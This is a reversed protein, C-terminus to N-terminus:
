NKTHPRALPVLDRLKQTFAMKNKDNYVRMVKKDNLFPSTASKHRSEVTLYQLRHDTIDADVNGCQIDKYINLPHLNVFVQDIISGSDAAFKSPRTETDILPIMGFELLNDYFLESIKDCSQRKKCINFDGVLTFLNLDFNQSVYKTLSNVFITPNESPSRYVALLTNSKLNGCSFKLALSDCAELVESKSDILNIRDKLYFVTVGGSKNQKSSHILTYGPLANNYM